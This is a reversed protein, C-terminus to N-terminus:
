TQDPLRSFDTDRSSKSALEREGPVLPLPTFYHSIEKKFSRTTIGVGNAHPFM